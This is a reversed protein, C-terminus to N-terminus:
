FLVYFIGIVKKLYLVIKKMLLFIKQFFVFLIVLPSLCSINFSLQIIKKLDKYSLKEFKQNFNISILFLYFEHLIKLKSKLSIFSHMKSIIYIAVRLRELVFYKFSNSSGRSVSNSSQRFYNLPESYYAIKTSNLSVDFWFQWDGALRYIQFNPNVSFYLKRAFVASSANIVTNNFFLHNKCEKFGSSVYWGQNDYSVNRIDKSIFKGFNDVLISASFAMGIESDLQMKEVIKQLFLNDSYDDSEAIWVLEGKALKIGKDWQKFTSGSNISNYEMFSIKNNWRYKEIINRSRDTSADDLIIIELNQYTQNLVSEIRQELFQAHNYNPIIVTVFPNDFL